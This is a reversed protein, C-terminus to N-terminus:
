TALFDLMPPAIATATEEIMGLSGPLALSQVPSLTTLAAMNATSKPPAQEATIVFFPVTVAQALALWDAQTAVPDLTGTVFAAPGYRAGAKQTGEYREAMLESTLREPDAFVHRRYMWKLFAPRTNLYYLAQGLGPSRVLNCLGSRVVAPAGMVALPGQWTPAVLAIKSWTNQQALKLVYGAAHGAAIVPIPASFQARVFDTLFAQLLEPQYAIPPRDSDGFGPWDLTIAQYNQALLKALPAVEARTSVTSFPPLLLLPPGNGLSEYAIQLSQGQWQWTYQQTSNTPRDTALTSHM